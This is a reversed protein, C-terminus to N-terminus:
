AAPAAVPNARTSLDEVEPEASESAAPAATRVPGAVASSAQKARRSRGRPQKTPTYEYTYVSSESGTLPARNLVVGLVRGHVKNLAEKAKEKSVGM